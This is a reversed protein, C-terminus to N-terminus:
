RREVWHKYSLVGRVTVDHSALNIALLEWPAGLEAKWGELSVGGPQIFHSWVIREFSRAGARLTWLTDRAWTEELFLRELYIGHSEFCSPLQVSGWQGALIVAEIPWIDSQWKGLTFQVGFPRAGAAVEAEALELCWSEHPGGKKSNCCFRVDGVMADLDGM